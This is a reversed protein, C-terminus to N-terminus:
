DHKTRDNTNEVDNDDDDKADDNVDEDEDDDVNPYSDNANDEKQGGCKKKRGDDNVKKEWEKGCM